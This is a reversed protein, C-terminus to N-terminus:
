EQFLTLHFKNGYLEKHRRAPAIWILHEEKDQVVQCGAGYAGVAEKDAAHHGNVGQADTYTIGSFDFRGDQDLDRWGKIVGIQRFAEYRKELDNIHHYSLEWANLAQQPQVIFTGKVNGLKNKLYYLGPLTSGKFVLCQKQGFSDLYCIFLVDNFQDEIPNKCRIGGVNCEYPRKLFIYSHKKYASELLDYNLIM